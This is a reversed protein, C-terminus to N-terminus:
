KSVKTAREVTAAVTYAFLHVFGASTREPLSPLYGYEVEVPFM